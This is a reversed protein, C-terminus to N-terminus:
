PEKNGPGSATKIFQELRKELRDLRRVVDSLTPSETNTENLSSAQRAIQRKLRALKLRKDRYERKDEELAKSDRAINQETIKLAAARQDEPVNGGGFNPQSLSRQLLELNVIKTPLEHRASEVEVELLEAEIRLAELNDRAREDDEFSAPRPQSSPTLLPASTQNPVHVKKVVVGQPGPQSGAPAPRALLTSCISAVGVVALACAMGSWKLKDVFMALMAGKVLTELRFPLARSLLAAAARRLSEPLVLESRDILTLLEPLGAALGVGRRSLRSRLMDRARALRGDVTGVPWNLQEAAESRTRQELCCLVIPLRYKEPLRHVEDLLASIREHEEVPCVPGAAALSEPLETTPRASRARRAVRIAVGYLWAGLREPQRLTAARKILVLFTAQFADDADSPDRLIRRCVARVMPGHREVIAEFAAPDRRDIFRALVQSESLGSITGWELLQQIGNAVAASGGSKM